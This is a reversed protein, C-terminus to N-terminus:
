IKEKFDAKHIRKVTMKSKGNVRCTMTGDELKDSTIIFTMINLHNKVDSETIVRLKKIKEM